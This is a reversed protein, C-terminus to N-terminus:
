QWDPGIGAPRQRSMPATMDSPVSFSFLGEWKKKKRVDAPVAVADTCTPCIVTEYMM